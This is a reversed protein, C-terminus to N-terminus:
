HRTSNLWQQFNTVIKGVSLHFPLTPTTPPRIGGVIGVVEGEKDLVQVTIFITFFVSFEPVQGM